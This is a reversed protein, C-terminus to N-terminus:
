DAQRRTANPFLAFCKSEHIVNFVDHGSEAYASKFDACGSVAVLVAVSRLDKYRLTASQRIASNCEALRLRHRGSLSASGTSNGILFVEWQSPPLASDRGNLIPAGGFDQCEGARATALSSFTKNQTM